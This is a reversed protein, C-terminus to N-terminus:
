GRSRKPKLQVPLENWLEPAKAKRWKQHAKEALQLKKQRRENRLRAEARQAAIKKRKRTAAAKKAWRSRILAEIRCVLRARELQEDPKAMWPYVRVLYDRITNTLGHKKLWRGTDRATTWELSRLFDQSVELDTPFWEDQM